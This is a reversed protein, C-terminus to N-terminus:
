CADVKGEKNSRSFNSEDELEVGNPFWALAQKGDTAMAADWEQRTWKLSGGNRLALIRIITEIKTM